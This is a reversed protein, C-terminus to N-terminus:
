KRAILLFAAKKGTKVELANIATAMSELGTIVGRVSKELGHRYHAELPHQYDQYGTSVEKVWSKAQIEKLKAPDGAFMVAKSKGLCLQKVRKLEAYADFIMLVFGTNLDIYQM